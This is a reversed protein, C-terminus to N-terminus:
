KVLNPAKHMFVDTLNQHEKGSLKDKVSDPMHKRAVYRPKDISKQSQKFIETGLEHSISEAMSEYDRGRQINVEDLREQIPTIWRKLLPIVKGSCVDEKSVNSIWVPTWILSDFTSGFLPGQDNWRECITRDAARKKLLQVLAFSGLNLEDDPSERDKGVWGLRADPHTREVEDTIWDPPHM